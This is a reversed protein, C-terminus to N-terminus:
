IIGAKFKALVEEKIIGSIMIQDENITELCGHGDLELAYRGL